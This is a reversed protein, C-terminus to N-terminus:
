ATLDSPINNMEVIAINEGLQYMEGDGVDFLRYRTTLKLWNGTENSFMGLNPEFSRYTHEFVSNPNNPELEQQCRARFDVLDQPHWYESRHWNSADKPDNFNLTCKGEDHIIIQKEDCLRVIAASKPEEFLRQALQYLEFSVGIDGFWITNAMKLNDGQMWPYIITRNVRVTGKLKQATTLLEQYCTNLIFDAKEEPLRVWAGQDSLGFEHNSLLNLLSM